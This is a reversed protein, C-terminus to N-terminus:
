NELLELVARKLELFTKANLDEYQVEAAEDFFQQHFKGTLPIKKAIFAAIQERKWGKKKALLRLLEADQAGRRLAKVRLSCVVNEGFRKGDVILGNQNAEDLAGDGAVSSWPVVGDAGVVYANLCWAATQHNSQDIKNCAGYTYLITPMRERMISCRRIKEFISSNVVMMEMLGDMWTFQWEPRSIDGRFLFNSGSVKPTSEHFLQSFYRLAMWDDYCRPEDLCWWSSGRGRRRYSDKNNFYVMFRTRDWGKKEFHEVFDQVVNQFGVEYERTFAQEIPPSNLAHQIICNEGHKLGDYDYHEEIPNPWNECFPMYFDSVPVGTRPNDEFATGDFLPGVNRDYETWDVVHQENGVGDIKPSLDDHAHGSQSYPVRTLTCRHAHAIRHMDFWKETGAKGLGGYYNLMPDFNLEDPIVADYVKVQLMLAVESVGNASVIIKGSYLGPVTKKPVYLDIYLAQIKQKKVNNDDAPISFKDSFPIAYEQQWGDKKVYWNRYARIQSKSISNRQGETDIASLDSFEIRVNELRDEVRQIALQFAAIEGRAALLKVTNTDANWVCNGWRYDGDFKEDILDGKIPDIKSVEPFAWIKMKGAFSRSTPEVVQQDSIAISPLELKASSRGISKAIPSIEDTKSVARIELELEIDSPLDRVVFSQRQGVQKAFPIQWRPLDKGNIKIQYSFASKPVVFSIKAAGTSLTSHEPEAHIEIQKPSEIKIPKSESAHVVLYPPYDSERAHVYNNALLQGTEDMVCLGDSSETVLAYIIKPPLDIKWWGNGTEHLIAHHELTYGNGMILDWLRSGNWAWARKGKHAENFTTNKENWGVNLHPAIAVTSVGIKRLANDRDLSLNLRRLERKNRVNHLFLEAKVVEKGKLSSLDFGILGMEQIGKLKITNSNGRTRDKEDRYSSLAADKTAILKFQQESPSVAMLSACVYVFFTTLM